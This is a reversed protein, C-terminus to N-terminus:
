LAFDYPHDFEEQTFVRLSRKQMDYVSTHITIWIFEMFSRTRNEYKRVAVELYDEWDSLPTNIDIHVGHWDGGYSESYWYPTLSLDYMRSYRVSDMLACTGDFSASLPYLRKLLDYREIGMANPTYGDHLLYFNTMIEDKPAGYCLKNNITEVVLSKTSDAIFFHLEGLIPPSVINCEELLAIAEDASAANDLLYRVVMPSYLLHKGPNTGTTHGLDGTPAINISCYLGRENVGDMTFYPLLDYLRSQPRNEAMEPTFDVLGSAIGISAYRGPAANVRIVHEAMNCYYYDFNRGVYNGNRVVSCAGGMATSSLTNAFDTMSAEDYDDYTILYLYDAVKEPNTHISSADREKNCGALTLLGLTPIMLLLFSLKKNKTM